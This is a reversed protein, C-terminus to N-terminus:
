GNIGRQCRRTIVKPCASPGWFREGSTVLWLALHSQHSQQLSLPKQSAYTCLSTHRLGASSGRFSYLLLSGLSHKHLQARLPTLALLALEPPGAARLRHQGLELWAQMSRPLQELGRNGGQLSSWAKRETGKCGARIQAGEAGALAESSRGPQGARTGLAVRTGAGGPDETAKSGQRGSGM